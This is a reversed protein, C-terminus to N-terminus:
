EYKKTNIKKLKEKRIKSLSIFYDDIEESLFTEYKDDIVKVKYSTINDSNININAHYTNGSFFINFININKDDSYPYSRICKLIM